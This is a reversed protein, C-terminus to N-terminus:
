AGSSGSGTASQSAAALGSSRQSSVKGAPKKFQLARRMRRNQFGRQALLDAKGGPATAQPQSADSAPEVAASLAQPQAPEADATPAEAAASPPRSAAPKPSQQIPDPSSAAAQQVPLSQLQRLQALHQLFLRGLATLQSRIRRKAPEAESCLLDRTADRLLHDLMVCQGALITEMADRPRFAMASFIATQHRAFRQSETEGPRDAITDALGRLLETVLQEFGFKPPAQM